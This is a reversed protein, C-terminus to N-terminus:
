FAIWSYLFLTDNDRANHFNGDFNDQGGNMQLYHTYQVGIKANAWPWAPPGGNSFPMYSAEFTLGRANPSNSLSNGNYLPPPNGNVSAGYLQADPTGRVSFYSVSAAITRNWVYQATARLSVLRNSINQSGGNSSLAPMGWTNVFQGQNFTSNLQQHEVIRSFKLTVAHPDDIYQYQADFGIDTYRDVGFGQVAGPYIRPYFGFAGVMLSHNGWNPEIAVRWYPAFGALSDSSCLGQPGYWPYYPPNNLPNNNIDNQLVAYVWADNNACPVGLARKLPMSMNHYGGAEVYVVDNFLAYATTGIVKGALNGEIQTGPPAFQPALTSAVYPSGWAPTTNWVDQVTPGNHVTAGFLLDLKGFKATDAYRIDTNDLFTHESARDYTGQIFAGLNGYIKGGYFVSVQQMVANDNTHTDTTPPSDQGKRTHTFTPVLMAALPPKGDWLGEGGGITYGSLKFRRGFPTLEPFATHCTACPQGTQRAFSPLAKARDLAITVFLCAAILVASLATM